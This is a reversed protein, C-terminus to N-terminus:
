ASADSKNALRRSKAQTKKKKMPDDPSKNSSIQAQSSLLSGKTQQIWNLTSDWQKIDTAAMRRPLDFITLGMNVTHVYNQTNRLYGILPLNVESLFAMLTKSFNTRIDVRNALLAIKNPNNIPLNVQNLKMLFRACASVDTPSPLVPIILQHNHISDALEEAGCGAAMDHIAIDFRNTLIKHKFFEIGQINPLSTPRSRLWDICSKQPDHDCLAVTKGLKAFYGALQISLTTKGCGGKPNALFIQQM